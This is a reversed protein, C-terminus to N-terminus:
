KQRLVIAGKEMVYCHDALKLAFEFYQEVLLVALRGERKLSELMQGILSIISTLRGTSNKIQPSTTSTPERLASPM